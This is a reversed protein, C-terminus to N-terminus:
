KNRGKIGAESMEWILKMMPIIHWDSVADSTTMETHGTVCIETLILEKFWHKYYTKMPESLSAKLMIDQLM